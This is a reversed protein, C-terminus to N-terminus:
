FSSFRFKVLGCHFIFKTELSHGISECKSSFWRDEGTFTPQVSSMPPRSIPHPPAVSKTEMPTQIILSWQMEHLWVIIYLNACSWMFVCIQDCLIDFKFWSGDTPFVIWQHWFEYIWVRPMEQVGVIQLAILKTFISSHSSQLTKNSLCSKLSICTLNCCKNLIALIRSCIRGM